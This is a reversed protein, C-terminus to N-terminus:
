TLEAQNKELFHIADAIQVQLDSFDAESAVVHFGSASLKPGEPQSEPLRPEGRRFIATPKLASEALFEDVAFSIGRARLVCSM